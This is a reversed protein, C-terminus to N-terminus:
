EPQSTLPYFYYFRPAASYKPSVYMHMRNSSRVKQESSARLRKSVNHLHLQFLLQLKGAYGRHAHQQESFFIM